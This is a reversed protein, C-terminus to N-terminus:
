LRRTAFDIIDLCLDSTMDDRDLTPNLEVIDMSRVNGAALLGGLLTKLEDPLMGDEATTGTGPAYLPDVADIDLSIHVNGAGEAAIKECIDRAVAEAGMRQMAKMTYVNLNEREILDIEGRDLSRIGALFVNRPSVKVVPRYLEVVDRRGYGMLAALPMGHMNGSPSSEETNIDGHADIWVVALDGKWHASAGSISGLALSHDGGIILPFAGAALADYTAEALNLAVERIERLYKTKGGAAYMQDATAPPVFIDGLDYAEECNRGLMEALGKERLRGPATQAGDKGSGLCLPVGITSIKM